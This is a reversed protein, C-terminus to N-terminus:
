LALFAFMSYTAGYSRKNRKNSISILGFVPNILFVLHQWRVIITFVQGTDIRQWPFMFSHFSIQSRQFVLYAKIHLAVYNNGDNEGM